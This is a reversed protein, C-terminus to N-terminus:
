GGGYSHGALVIHGQQARLIRQLTTVDDALSTLLLQAAVVKMGQKLLRASVKNWISGDSWAGHVLVLTPKNEFSNTM